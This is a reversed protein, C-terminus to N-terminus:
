DDIGAQDDSYVRVFQDGELIEDDVSPSTWTPKTGTIVMNELEPSKLGKIMNIVYYMWSVWNGLGLTIRKNGMKDPIGGDEDEYM